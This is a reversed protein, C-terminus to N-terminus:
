LLDVLRRTVVSESSRALALFLALASLVAILPMITYMSAPTKLLTLGVVESFSVTGSEFKQAVEILDILVLLIFFGVTLGFFYALFKKGFYFHLRM